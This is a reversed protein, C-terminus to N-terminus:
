LGLDLKGGLTFGDRLAALSARRDTLLKRRCGAVVARSVNARSLPQEPLADDFDDLTLTTAALEEGSLPLLNSWSQACVPDASALLQLAYTPHSDRFARTEHAGSLFELLFSSPGPGTPHDDLVSKLLFRGVLSLREKDVRSIALPSFLNM